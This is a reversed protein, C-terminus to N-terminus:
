VFNVEAAASQQQCGVWYVIEGHSKSQHPVVILVVHAAEQAIEFGVTNSCFGRDRIARAQVRGHQGLEPGFRSMLQADEVNELVDVLMNKVRQTAMSLAQSTLSFGFAPSAEALSLLAGTGAIAFG